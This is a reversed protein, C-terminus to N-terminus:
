PNRHSTRPSGPRHAINPRCGCTTPPRRPPAAQARRERGAGSADAGRPHVAPARHPRAATAEQIRWRRRSGDRTGPTEGPSSCTWRASAAPAKLGFRMASFSGTPPRPRGRERHCAPFPFRRPSPSTPTSSPRRRRALRFVDRKTCDAGTRISLHARGVGGIGQGIIKRYRKRVRSKQTTVRSRPRNPPASFCRGRIKRQTSATGVEGPAAGWRFGDGKEGVEPMGM